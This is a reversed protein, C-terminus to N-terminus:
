QHSPTKNPIPFLAEFSYCYINISNKNIPNRWTIHLMTPPSTLSRLMVDAQYLQMARHTKPKFLLVSRILDQQLALSPLYHVLHNAFLISITIKLSSVYTFIKISSNNVQSNRTIQLLSRPKKLQASDAQLLVLSTKNNISM